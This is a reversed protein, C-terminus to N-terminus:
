LHSPLDDPDERLLRFHRRVFWFTGIALILLILGLGAGVLAPPVQDLLDRGADYNSKPVNKFAM